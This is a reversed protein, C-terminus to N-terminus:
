QRDEGCHRAQWEDITLEREPTAEEGPLTPLIVYPNEAERERELRALRKEIATTM